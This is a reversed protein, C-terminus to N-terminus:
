EHALPMKEIPLLVVTRLLQPGIKSDVPTSMTKVPWSWM